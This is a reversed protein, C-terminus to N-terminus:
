PMIFVDVDVDRKLYVAVVVVKHVDGLIISLALARTSDIRPRAIHLMATVAMVAMVPVRALATLGSGGLRRLRSQM